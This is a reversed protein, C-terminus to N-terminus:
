YASNYNSTRAAAKRKRREEEALIEALREQSAREDANGQMGYLDVNRGLMGSLAARPDSGALSEVFRAFGRQRAAEPGQVQDGSLMGTDESIGTFPDTQDASTTMQGLTGRVYLARILQQADRDNLDRVAKQIEEPSQGDLATPDAFVQEIIKDAQQLIYDIYQPSGPILGAQRMTAADLGLYQVASQGVQGFYEQDTQGEQRPPMEFRPTSGGPGNLTQYLKDITQAMKAYKQIQADTESRPPPAAAPEGAPPAKETESPAAGTPAAVGALLQDLPNTPLAMGPGPLSMPGASAPNFRDAPLSYIEPNPTSTGGIQVPNQSQDFESMDGPLMGKGESAAAGGVAGRSAATLYDNASGGGSLYQRGAGTVAGTATRTGLSSDAVSGGAAGGLAGLGASTLVDKGSGGQVATTAGGAAAGGAAGAVAPSAGAAGAIGGTVGGTMYSLLALTIAAMNDDVTNTAGREIQDVKSSNFPNSIPSLRQQMGGLAGGRKNSSPNNAMVVQWSPHSHIYSEIMQADPHRSLGNEGGPNNLDLEAMLQYADLLSPDLGSAVLQAATRNWQAPDLERVIKPPLPRLPSGIGGESDGQDFAGLQDFFSGLEPQTKLLKLAEEVSRALGMAVMAQAQAIAAPPTSASPPVYNQTQSDPVDESM